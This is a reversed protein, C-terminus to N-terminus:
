RIRGSAHLVMQRGNQENGGPLGLVMRQLLWVQLRGSVFSMKACQLKLSPLFALNFLLDGPKAKVSAIKKMFFRMIQCIMEKQCKGILAAVMLFGLFIGKM